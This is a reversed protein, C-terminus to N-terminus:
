GARVVGHRGPTPSPRDSGKPASDGTPADGEGGAAALRAGPTPFSPYYEMTGAADMVIPTTGSLNHVRIDNQSWVDTMTMNSVVQGPYPNLNSVNPRASGDNRWLTIVTRNKPQAVTTNSVVATTNYGAIPSPVKVARSQNHGLDSFLGQGIRSDVFRTPTELSRYRWGYDEDSDRFYVGVVDVVIHATGLSANYIGIRPIPVEPYDCEARCRGAKIISMNPVTKGADFNLTSTKSLESRDSGDFATLHGSRSPQTVTVNVAYAMVRPDFEPGFSVTTWLWSKPGLPEKGWDATRTDVVRTPEISNFGALETTESRATSTPSHYYGVVDAAVHTSGARNYIRVKGTSSVPITVLNAGVWGANFNVSSATPRSRNTPYVTLYGRKTPKIATINLVVASVGASPVGGRGVVKVDKFARQGIPTTTSVGVKRRTDLLRAAPLPTYTGGARVTAVLTLSVVRDGSDSPLTLWATTGGATRPHAAIDVTCSGGAPVTKSSCTDNRTVWVGDGPVALAGFTTEEEASVTVTRYDTTEGLAVDGFREYDVTSDYRLEGVNAPEGEECSLSYTAALSDIVGEGDRSVEHITVTGGGGGCTSGDGQVDLGVTGAGSSRAVSFTGPTLDGDAPGSITATWPDLVASFTVSDKAPTVTLNSSGVSSYGGADLLSSGEVGETTFASFAERPSVGAGAAPVTLLPAVLAALSLAGTIIRRSM